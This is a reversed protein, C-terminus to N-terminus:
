AAPTTTTTHQVTVPPVGPCLAENPVGVKTIQGIIATLATIAAANKECCCRAKEAELDIKQQIIQERLIAKENECQSKAELVAIRERNAASEEALPRIFTYLEDRLIRNDSLTQKYTAADQTDSYKEATLQAIKADKEAMAAATGGALVAANGGGFLGGLGGLGNGGTLYPLAALALAPISTGLAAGKTAYNSTNDIM